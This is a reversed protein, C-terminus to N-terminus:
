NQFLQKRHETPQRQHTPSSSYKFFDNSQQKKNPMIEFMPHAIISCEKKLISNLLSLQSIM